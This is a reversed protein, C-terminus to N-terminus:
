LSDLAALKGQADARIASREAAGLRALNSVMLATRMNGALESEHQDLFNWYLVTMPCAEKGHRLEPRYACGACYNSMRKIYAGSAVYPKTTFRGGNAFLAMGTTNPLEAWEVADVYVARYWASVQQPELEALLAFNGTVMLRQIHHAYGHQMTQGITQRMCNMRTNGSWYWAPLARRHKFHNGEALGPMDLWYVGRIFERWGLIQRVFGEVGALPLQHQRWAALVADLVERPNLLKLNLSSSLLAHWGFPTDTWMADQHPGFGPLRQAVFTELATLAEKRTVPWAFHALAGPHQPFHKEVEAFVERTLANPAFSAPPPIAGPGSKPFGKRNEKDFNWTGGEPDRGQMLIGTRKRMQRYFMEMLLNKKEGAWARFEETSILFHTDARVELPTRAAACADQIGALVRYEGPECVIVREPRQAAIHGALVDFLTREGSEALGSYIVPLGRETLARQHHRMAALFLAIRAKHSWVHAGESTAEIMLVADRAADFNDLAPNDLNLQDGLVLILHRLPPGPPRLPQAPHRQPAAGNRVPPPTAPKM